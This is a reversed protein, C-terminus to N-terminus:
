SRYKRKARLEDLRREEALADLMERPEMGTVSGVFSAFANPDKDEKMVLHAIAADFDVRKGTSEQLRAALRLLAEKTESSVRITESM